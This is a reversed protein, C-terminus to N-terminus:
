RGWTQEVVGAPANRGLLHGSCDLHCNGTWTIGLRSNRIWLDKLSCGAFYEMAFYPRGAFKRVEYMTVIDPHNLSAAAQADRKFRAILEEDSALQFPLFKLAVCRRLKTDEALYAGGMARAGIKTIIAYYGAVTEKPLVIRM